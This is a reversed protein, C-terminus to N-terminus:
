VAQVRRLKDGFSVERITHGSLELLTRLPMWIADGQVEFQEPRLILPEHDEWSIEAEQRLPNWSVYAGLREMMARVPVVYAGGESIRYEGAALRTEVSGVAVALAPANAFLAANPVIHTSVWAESPSIRQKPLSGGVKFQVPKTKPTLTEFRYGKSQYYSIIQPLARVTEEHGAGDHLLVVMRDKLPSKQINSLIEAAPVGKRKSDGSDVDWDFVAYGADKLLKFYNKDFHGFTGGPARVLQPRSGTIERVIEETQKIQQWFASFHHYLENYKHNFTHNGIAHGEDAIRRIVEPSQKAMQGLVFFTAGIKKEELIDLVQSTLKSPGDDFTLYVM